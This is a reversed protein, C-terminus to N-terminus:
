LVGEEKLAQQIDSPFLERTIYRYEEENVPVETKFIDVLMRAEELTLTDTAEKLMADIGITISQMTSLVEEFQDLSTNPNFPVFARVQELDKDSLGAQQWVDRLTQRTQPETTLSSTFKRNFM